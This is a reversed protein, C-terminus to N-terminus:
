GVGWITGELCRTAPELGAPPASGVQARVQPNAAPPTPFRFVPQIEARSTVRIEHVLLHMLAKRESPPKTALATRLRDRVARLDAKPWCSRASNVLGRTTAQVFPKSRKKTPVWGSIIGCGISVTFSM